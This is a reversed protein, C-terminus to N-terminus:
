LERLAATCSDYSIYIHRKRSTVRALLTGICASGGGGGGDDGGGSVNGSVDGGGGGSM